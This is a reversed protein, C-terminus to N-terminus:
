SRDVARRSSTLNQSRKGLYRGRAALEEARAIQAEKLIQKYMHPKMGTERQRATKVLVNGRAGTKHDYPPMENATVPHASADDGRKTSSPEDRKPMDYTSRRFDPSPAMSMPFRVSKMNSRDTPPPSSARVLMTLSRMTLLRGLPVDQLFGVVPQSQPRTGVAESVPAQGEEGRVEGGEPLCAAGAPRAACRRRVDTFVDSLFHLPLVLFNLPVPASYSSELYYLCTSVRMLNFSKSADRETFNSYSESFMAILLNVGPLAVFFLYFFLFAPALFSAGPSSSMEVIDFDGFVSWFPQWFSAGAGFDNNTFKNQPSTLLPGDTGHLSFRPAILSFSVGFFLMLLALMPFMYVLDKMYMQKVSFYIRAYQPSIAFVELCRFGLLMASSALLLNLV